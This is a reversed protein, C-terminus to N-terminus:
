STAGERVYRKVGSVMDIRATFPASAAYMEFNRAFKRQERASGLMEALETETVTGHRSLHQFVRRIPGEPLDSLWTETVAVEVPPRPKVPVDASWFVDFREKLICPEVKAEQSPHYVEVQVRASSNGSLRFFLEFEEGVTAIIMGSSLRAGGRTEILEIRVGPVDPVRLALDMEYRSGFDLSRQQSAVKGLICHMEAGAPKQSASIDYTTTSGGIQVRHSVTLVPIVREQLSNGGHAFGKRKKGTEFVAATEPFMLHAEECDYGLDRLAVRVEGSHNAARDSLIHRRKPDAKRGHTQATHSEEDFLLFGHDATFVFQRVGAERLLHWASRLDKMVTEFVAPGLGEEGADDFERSHVVILKSRAISRTLSKADRRLVESLDM